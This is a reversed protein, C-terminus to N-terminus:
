RKLSMDLRVHQKIFGDVLAAGHEESAQDMLKKVDDYELEFVGSDLCYEIAADNMDELDEEDMAELDAEDYGLVHERHVNDWTYELAATVTDLFTQDLQM